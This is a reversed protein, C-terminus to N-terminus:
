QLPQAVELDAAVAERHDCTSVEGVRGDLRQGDVVAREQLHHVARGKPVQRGQGAQDQVGIRAQGEQVCLGEQTHGGQARQGKLVGAYAGDLRVHDSGDQM